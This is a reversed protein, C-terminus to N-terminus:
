TSGTVCVVVPKRYSVRTEGDAAYIIIIIINRHTNRDDYKRSRQTVPGTASIAYTRFFPRWDGYILSGDPSLYCGGWVPLRSSLCELAPEGVGRVDTRRYHVTQTKAAAPRCGGGCRVDASGYKGTGRRRRQAASPMRDYM